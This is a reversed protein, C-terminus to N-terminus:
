ELKHYNQARGKILNDIAELVTMVEPHFDGCCKRYIELSEDYKELAKEIEGQSKLNIAMNYLCDAVKTNWKGYCKTYIELSEEYKKLSDKMRGMKKLVVGINNLTMAVQHHIEGYYNKYISLSEEYSNLAETYLEKRKLIDAIKSFCDANDPHFDRCKQKKLDLAETYKKLAEDQKGQIYYVDGIGILCDAVRSSRTGYTASYVVMSEEFYCIAEIYRGQKMYVTAKNFLCTAVDTHYRGLRRKFIGQAETYRQIADDLRGQSNFVNGIGVLCHALIPQETFSKVDTLARLCNEYIELSKMYNKENFAAHASQLLADFKNQVELDEELKECEVAFFELKEKLTDLSIRDQPHKALMDMLIIKLQRAQGFGEESKLTESVVSSVERSSSRLSKLKIEPIGRSFLFILGLAYVDTKSMDMYKLSCSEKTMEPARFSSDNFCLMERTLRKEQDQPTLSREWGCLYEVGNIYVINSPKLNNHSINLSQKANCLANVINKLLQISRAISLPAGINLTDSLTKGLKTTYCIQHKKDDFFVKEIKLINENNALKMGHSIGNKFLEYTSSRSVKTVQLLVQQNTTKDKAKYATSLDNEHLTILDIFNETIWKDIPKSSPNPLSRFKSNDASKDM